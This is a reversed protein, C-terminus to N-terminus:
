PTLKLMLNINQIAADTAGKGLNDLMAILLYYDNNEYCYLTITNNGQALYPSLSPPTKNSIQIIDSSHYFEQWLQILTTKSISKLMQQKNLPIEILMGRHFHCIHPIFCPPHKLHLHTTIEPLHKHNLNLAYPKIIHALQEESSHNEYAQITEKGAGSYGSFGSIYLPLSPDIIKNKILPSLLAIIGSPYCGPNSVSLSQAIIEAQNQNLEPLGYTWEPHTRFATSTDIIKTPIKESRIKSVIDVSAHDPLCLITLDAALILDLRAQLNKRNKEPISLLTLDRRQSLKSFLELGTTGAQGDIFINPTM